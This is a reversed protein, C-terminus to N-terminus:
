TFDRSLLERTRERGPHGVSTHDHYLEIVETRLTGVNPVFIKENFRVFGLDSELIEALSDSDFSFRYKDQIDEKSQRQAERIKYLIEQLDTFVAAAM